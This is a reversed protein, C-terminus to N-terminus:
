SEAGQARTVLDFQLSLTCKVSKSEFVGLWIFFNPGIEVCFFLPFFVLPTEESGSSAMNVNHVKPYTSIPTIYFNQAAASLAIM